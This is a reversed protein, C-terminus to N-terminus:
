SAGLASKKKLLWCNSLWDLLGRFDISGLPDNNKGCCCTM